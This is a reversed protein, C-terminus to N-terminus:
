PVEVVFSTGRIGATSTPTKIQSSSPNNKVVLGSIMAFTGKIVNVFINGAYTDANFAYRDLAMQSNPGVSMRTEDKLMLGVSSDKSTKVLDGPEITTGVEVPITKGARVIEVTGEKKKVVGAVTATDAFSAGAMLLCGTAVTALLLKNVRVQKYTHM